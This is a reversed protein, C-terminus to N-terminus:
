NLFFSKRLILQSDDHPKVGGPSGRINNLLTIDSM